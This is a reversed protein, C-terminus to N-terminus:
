YTTDTSTAAQDLHRRADEAQRQERDRRWAVDRAKAHQFAQEWHDRTALEERWGTYSYQGAPQQPAAPQAPNVQPATQKWPEAGGPYGPQGPPPTGPAPPPPVPQQGPTPQQSAPKIREQWDSPMAKRVNELAADLWRTHWEAAATPHSKEM